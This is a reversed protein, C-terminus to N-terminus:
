AARRALDCRAAEAAALAGELFGGEEGATEAGAFVLRATPPVPRYAPHGRPPAHDASTATATEASWDQIHVARPAAAEPGFLRILQAVAGEQFEPARASGPAAFGFLAGEAPARLAAHPSADHIEMLPGRHSIADGNLGVARWFPNPYVAVLKAQGAMWTPADPVPVGLPAALRPPLALVAKSARFSFPAGERQGILTVGDAAEEIRTVHAGLRLAGGVWTALRETIQALGGAVRLAGGMTAMDLDRRVRGEADEFVLRGVSNQPFLQLQLREALDRMRRHHPWIWAPGLDYGAVSLVRGGPRDRSELVVVDRGDAQLAHALALGCLGGGVIAIEADHTM